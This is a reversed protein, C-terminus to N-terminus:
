RRSLSAKKIFKKFSLIGLESVVATIYNKDILEFAPNRIKAKKPANKWVEHFNREEIKINGPFFKWSDSVIYLPIKHLYALEAILGSGVKNIVGNKLIADSGLMILNTKRTGQKKELAIAAASDVFTTVKIGAKKLEITTKRGQFLPRTETNYVQFKKRQKKASILSKIVNTSHCHTFIVNNNKILKNVNNNIKEQVTHFHISINKCQDKEGKICKQMYHLTNMLLPETPRAKILAHEVQPTPELIYAKLAAKAINTAGQIKISKIDSIIKKVEKKM